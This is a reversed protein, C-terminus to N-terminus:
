GGSALSVMAAIEDVTQSENGGYGVSKFRIRGTKDLVFKTPIGNVKFSNVMKDELDLVQTRFSYPKDKLFDEVNKKKDDTNEWTNVFLFVVDNNSVHNEQATYMAPFSAICPGCWTAWFDIVVVKGKLSALSVENGNMDKLAFSPAEENLMSARLEELKRERMQRTLGDFYSAFDQKKKASAYLTELQKKMASSYAGEVVAKELFPITKASGKIKELFLAYRENYESSGTGAIEIARQIYPFGEKYKGQQYLLFAYTDAYTAYRNNLRQIYDTTSSSSPKNHLKKKEEELLNLSRKSIESAEPLNKGAEASNWAISNLTGALELGSDAKEAAAIAAAFNGEKSQAFAITSYINNIVRQQWEQPKGPIAAIFSDLVMQREAATKIKNFRPYIDQQKWSGDPFKLKHYASLLKGVPKNQFKNAYYSASNYDRDQIDPLSPLEALYNILAATDKKRTYYELTENFDATSPLGNEYYKTFYYDAKKEDEDIGMQWGEGNYLQHLTKYAEKVTENDADVVFFTYGKKENNDIQKGSGIKVVFLVTSDPVTFSATWNTKNKKLQIDTAEFRNNVKCYVSAPIAKSKVWAADATEYTVQVTSGAQPSEPLIHLNSYSAQQAHLPVIAVLFVITQLVSKM